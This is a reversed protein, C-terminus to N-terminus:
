YDHFSTAHLFMGSAEPVKRFRRLKHQICSCELLKRFTGSGEPVKKTPCRSTTNISHTTNCALVNWFSGSGEPVKRFRRLKHQICYCELLKRFRGSPEPVKKTPWRSTTNISHTTNCKTVYRRKGWSPEPLNRFRGTNM